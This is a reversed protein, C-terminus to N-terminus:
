DEVPTWGNAIYCARREQNRRAQNDDVVTYRPPEWYGGYFVCRGSPDCSRVPPVFYAPAMLMTRLLPPWVQHAHARCQAEMARFEAETAGPKAWKEACGGALLVLALLALRRM